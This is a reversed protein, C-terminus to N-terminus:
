IPLLECERPCILLAAFTYLSREILFWDIDLTFCKPLMSTFIKGFMSSAICLYWLAALTCLALACENRRLKSTSGTDITYSVNRLHSLTIFSHLDSPASFIDILSQSLTTCTFNLPQAEQHM